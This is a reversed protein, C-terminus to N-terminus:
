QAEPTRRLHNPFFCSLSMALIVKNSPPIPCSSSARDIVGSQLADVQIVEEM